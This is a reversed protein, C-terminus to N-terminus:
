ILALEGTVELAQDADGWTLEPCRCSDGLLDCTGGLFGLALAKGNGLLLSLRRPRGSHAHWAQKAPGPTASPQPGLDLRGVISPSSDVFEDSPGMTPLPELPVSSSDTDDALSTVSASTIGSFSRRHPVEGPGTSQSLFAGCSVAADLSRNPHTPKSAARQREGGAKSSLRGGRVWWRIRRKARGGSSSSIRYSPTFRFTGGQAPDIESIGAPVGARTRELPHLSSSCMKRS